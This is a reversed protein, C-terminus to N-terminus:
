SFSILLYLHICKSIKNPYLMLRQVNIHFSVTEDRSYRKPAGRKVILCISDLHEINLLQKMKFKGDAIADSPVDVSFTM